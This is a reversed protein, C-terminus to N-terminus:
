TLARVYNPHPGLEFVGNKAASAGGNGSSEVEPITERLQTSKARLSSLWELDSVTFAAM